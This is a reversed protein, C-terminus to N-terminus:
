EEEPPLIVVTEGDKTFIYNERAYQTLYDENGLLNIEDLLLAKEKELNEYELNVTGLEDKQECILGYCYSFSGVIVGFSVFLFLLGRIKSFNIKSQKKTKKAVIM